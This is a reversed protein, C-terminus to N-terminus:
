ESWEKDQDKGFSSMLLKLPVFYFMLNIKPVAGKFITEPTEWFIIKLMFFVSFHKNYRTINHKISNCQKTLIGVIYFVFYKAYFAKISTLEKNDSM